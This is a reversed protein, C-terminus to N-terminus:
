RRGESRATWNEKVKGIGLEKMRRGERKGRGRVDKGRGKRM